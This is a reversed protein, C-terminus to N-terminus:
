EARLAALPDVRTARRAPVYSAVVAVLLLLGSAGLISAVDRSAVGYVLHSMVGAGVIAVLLGVASGVVAISTGEWVVMRTVDRRTAGLAVRIGFERLRQTVGYAVVGYIGV